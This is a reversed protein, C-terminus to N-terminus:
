RNTVPDQGHIINRFDAPEKDNLLKLGGSAKILEQFHNERNDYQEKNGYTTILIFHYPTAESPEIELLNYSEIYGKKLASKHLAKWNNQYYFLTEAHNNNMVEVFDISSLKHKNQSFSHFYCCFLISLIVLKKM